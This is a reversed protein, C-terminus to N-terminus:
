IVVVEKKQIPTTNWQKMQAILETERKAYAASLEDPGISLNMLVKEGGWCVFCRYNRFWLTYFKNVDPSGGRQLIGGGHSQKRDKSSWEDPIDDPFFTDFFDERTEDGRKIATWGGLEEAIRDWYISGRLSRTIAGMIETENSDYVTLTRGRQTRYGLSFSPIEFARRARRGEIAKWEAVTAVYHDPIATLPRVILKPLCIMAVAAARCPWLLDESWAAAMWDPASLLDKVTTEGVEGHKTQARTPLEDWKDLSLSWALRGKGQMWPGAESARDPEKTGEQLGYALLGLVSADKEKCRALQIALDLCVDTDLEEATWLARFSQFWGLERPGFFWLWGRLLNTLMQLTMDSDILELAWFATEPIRGLHISFLLASEVEDERYLHKTLGM